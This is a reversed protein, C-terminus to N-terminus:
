LFSPAARSQGEGARNMKVTAYAFVEVHSDRM